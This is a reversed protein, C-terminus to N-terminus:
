LRHQGQRGIHERAVRHTQQYPELDRAGDDNVVVSVGDPEHGQAVQHDAALWRPGALGDGRTVCEDGHPKAAAASNMIADSGGLYTPVIEWSARPSCVVGARGGQYSNIVLKDRLSRAYALLHKPGTEFGHDHRGQCGSGVGASNDNTANAVGGHGDTPESPGSGSFADDASM